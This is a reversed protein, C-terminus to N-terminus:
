NKKPPAFDERWHTVDAMEYREGNVKWHQPNRGQEWSLEGRVVGLFPGYLAMKTHQRPLEDATAKWGSSESAIPLATLKEILDIARHSQSAFLVDRNRQETDGYGTYDEGLVELAYPMSPSRPAEVFSGHEAGKPHARFIWPAKSAGERALILAAAEELLAMPISNKAM